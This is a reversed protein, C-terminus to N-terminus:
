HAQLRALEDECRGIVRYLRNIEIMESETMKLKPLSRDTYFFKTMPNFEVQDGPFAIGPNLNSSVFDFKSYNSLDRSKRVDVNNFDPRIAGPHFWADGYSGVNMGPAIPLSPPPRNVILKVREIAQALESKDAAIQEPPTLPHTPASTPAPAPVSPVGKISVVLGDKLKVTIGPYSLLRLDGSQVQSSPPGKETLVNEYTEGVELASAAAAPILFALLLHRLASNLCGENALVPYGGSPAVSASYVDERGLARDKVGSHPLEGGMPGCATVEPDEGCDRHM